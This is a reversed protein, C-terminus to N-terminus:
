IGKSLEGQMFALFASIVEAHTKTGDQVSEVNIKFESDEAYSVSKTLVTNDIQTWKLQEWNPFFSGVNSPTVQKEHFELFSGHPKGDVRRISFSWDADAISVDLGMAMVLGFGKGKMTREKSEDLREDCKATSLADTEEHHTEQQVCQKLHTATEKIFHTFRRTGEWPRENRRVADRM